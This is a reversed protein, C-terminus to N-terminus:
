ELDLETLDGQGMLRLTDHPGDPIWDTHNIAYMLADYLSDGEGLQTWEHYAFINFKSTAGKPVEGWWGQYIQTQGSQMNLALSMDNHYYALLGQSGEPGEILRNDGTIKLRGTFCCDFHVLKLEGQSFGIQYISKATNELNGPLKECWSPAQGQAFDSQKVSYAIGDSLKIKTRLIGDTTYGEHDCYYIYNINRNAGYWALVEYSAQSGKLYNYPVGRSEFADKVAAIVGYDTVNRMVWSPVIILARINAPVKGPKFKLALPKTATTTGSLMMGGAEEIVISDLDDGLTIGSPIYGHLNQGSYTQSWALNKGEDYVKVSVSEAEPYYACFYHPENSDYPEACFFYNLFCSFTTEKLNSCTVRGNNSLSVAKLQHTGPGLYSIDINLPEGDEFFFM